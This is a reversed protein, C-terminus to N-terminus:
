AGVPGRLDALIEQAPRAARMPRAEGLFPWVLDRVEDPLVTELYELATGRLADDEEHLAKFATRLSAPDLHLALVNFVHEVNRDLRDRRLRDVLSSEDADEEEDNADTEVDWVKEDRGVERTVIAVIRELAIAIEPNAARIKLLARGCQYRVEFREDEIGRVLGEASALTPCRSLVRPIRRRVHFDVRPDCLADVLQGTSTPAAKVLASVAAAYLEKNALLPVTFAVLAATLPEESALIRQARASGTRLDLVAQLAEDVTESDAAVEGSPRLDRTLELREVIKDRLAVEQAAHPAPPLTSPKMQDAVSRLRGELLAVYGRHLPISRAVSVVACVMAVLLLAMGAHAKPFIAVAGMAIGGAIVTGVRDCGVDIVTKTARRKQASLPTYLLEYAARFLSNRQTAEAGRLLVMSALGPVAIGFAGGLVVIAPLIAVNVALGLKALALRGLLAQLLFSLLGVALWFQAFFRLLDPARPYHAVAVASFVYDLLGSTVAGLAVVLALNRLYPADWLIKFLPQPSAGPEEPPDPVDSVPHPVELADPADAVAAVDPADGGILGLQGKPDISKLRWTGWMCIVNTAALIPLLSLLPIVGAARWALLGGLVGGATGGGAIWSVARRGSHPAFTENILSWFASIVVAGFLATHLYLAVATVRPAVFSVGWEALLGAGSVAFAIPVVQAPTHRVMLRSLWLVAFLSVVASAAIMGPLHEVKFNSLFLADRAAKGAVQQAIMAGSAVAAVRTGLPLLRPALPM